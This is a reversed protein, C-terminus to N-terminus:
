NGGYSKIAEKAEQTTIVSGYMPSALDSAIAHLFRRTQERNSNAKVYQYQNSYAELEVALRFAHDSLYDFWWKDKDKEQQKAHTEEHVLLNDPVEVDAPLNPCYLTDGYTFVTHEDPKLISRIEDINPPYERVIKM